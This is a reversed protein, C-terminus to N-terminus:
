HHDDEVVGAQRRRDRELRLRRRVRVAESALPDCGPQATAVDRAAPRRERQDCRVALEVAVVLLKTVQEELPQRRGFWLRRVAAEVDDPEGVRDGLFRAPGVRDDPDVVPGRPAAVVPHQAPVRFAGVGRVTSPFTREPRGELPQGAPDIERGLGGETSEGTRGVRPQQAVGPDIDDDAGRRGLGEDRVM